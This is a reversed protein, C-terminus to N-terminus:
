EGPLLDRGDLDGPVPLGIRAALTPAIDVTAAPGSVRGAAIGSGFFVLPVNRDYGYPSGHSTGVGRFGLLCTPEVQIALDGSREPDFSNRYLRAFDDEGSAIEARTWAERISPQAELWREAVAVVREVPVGRAEALQRDVTLQSAPVVWPRPWGFPSLEFHLEAYFRLLFGILGQRGDELPCVLDGTAALWEPLPLVGHDSTLAVLLRDAGVRSELFRLFEGLSADLRLLADEAELSAPGYAHGVTDTASLSIALLDPRERTGLSEREVLTRAFALTLEDLFPSSYLNEAFDEADSDHLPHPSTRSRADSEGPFDDVREPEGPRAKSAHTWVAPVRSALGGGDGRNFAEVWEPLAAHYYGSTTFIPEPERIMWYAGDPARGGLTIAARDKASVSFVRAEPDAAKLWDGLTDSKLTRPSRGPGPEGTATFVAADAAADEVCYRRTSTALEVYTNAPIGSAGPHRGTLMSAHGPCTETVAHDLVGDSFVRGERALRGLGGPLAGDLRDRRLQDVAILVVLTPSSARVVPALLSSVLLFFLFRFLM